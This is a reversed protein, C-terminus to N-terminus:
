WAVLRGQQELRFPEMDKEVEHIVMRVDPDSENRHDASADFFAQYCWLHTTNPTM